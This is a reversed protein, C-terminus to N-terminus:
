YTLRPYWNAGRGEPTLDLLNWLPWMMDIHRENQGPEAPAFALETYYFHHIKGGRRVFVNFAPMQGRTDTEGHYDRNYTNGASSLLRLNNWGRGRAFDRIRAIPSKAVVGLNIRQAAHPAAGNLSDLFSACMPCAQKMEPGFMFSYLALTDFGERFLESLKVPRVMATDAIDAAGEEFVYDQAIEGGLPLERRMRAVQEVQARLDREATLLKDRAERYSASEGPFRINSHEAM